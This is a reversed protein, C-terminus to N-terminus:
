STSSEQSNHSAAQGLDVIAEGPGIVLALFSQREGLKRFEIRQGEMGPECAEAQLSIAVGGVLCRVTVHDGRKILVPKTVLNKRIWDGERMSRQAVRGIAQMLPCYQETENPALWHRVTEVDSERIIENRRVDRTLKVASFATEPHVTIRHTQAVQGGQWFLIDLSVQQSRYKSIPQIEIRADTLPTDLLEEDASDFKLRLDKSDVYLASLFTRAIEGRVTAEQVLQDASAPPEEEQPKSRTQKNVEGTLSHPEMAQPPPVDWTRPPRILVHQGSLNVKGWNVGLDDLQRRVDQVSLEIVGQSDNVPSIVLNALRVADPGELRAIDGLTIHTADRDLRVSRKLLISDGVTPLTLTASVVAGIIWNISMRPGSM